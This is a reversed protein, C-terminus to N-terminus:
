LTQVWCPKVSKLYNSKNTKELQSLTITKFRKERPIYNRVCVSVCVHVYVLLFFCLAISVCVKKWKNIYINNEKENIEESM